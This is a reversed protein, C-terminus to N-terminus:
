LGRKKKCIPCGNYSIDHTDPLPEVDEVLCHWVQFVEGEFDRATQPVILSMLAFTNTNRFSRLLEHPDGDQVSVDM